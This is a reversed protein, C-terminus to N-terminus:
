PRVQITVVFITHDTVQTQGADVVPMRGEPNYLGVRIQYTGAPTNQPISIQHPDNIIEGPTWSNTPRLGNMPEIDRQAVLTGFDLTLVHIFVKYSSPIAQLARWRLTLGMTDGPRYTSQSVRADELLVQNNLNVQMPIPLTTGGSVTLTITNGARVETGPEPVQKLIIGAPETSWTQEITLILGDAELGAQIQANQDNLDYGVVDQLILARGAALVVDITTEAPVRNGPAPTQELVAGPRVEVSEQEGIVELRLGLSEALRQADPASLGTLNPVSVIVADADLTATPSIPIGITPITVPQMYTQYVFLWLPVLGIVAIAAVGILAWLLFDPRSHAGVPQTSEPEVGAGGTTPPPADVSQPRTASVTTQTQTYEVGQQIYAGVATGLQDANHYRASPDKSLARRVLLELGPPVRPNLSRLSVPEEQLHKLALATPDPDHFPPVGTLMEYLMVGISYVDTAPTPPKGMAQEPAIYHPSGWVVDEPEEQNTREEHHFARAIGFDAVKAQGEYTVLINQPKLDCHVIGARHALGVGACIQQTLYLAQNVSLPGDRRIGTKLDEGEVIEMVIYPHNGEDEGVDYIRVINPHDLRAAARAEGLFRERFAPDSAFPERLFKVAITRELLLDEGRYVTAMGGAGVLEVLRYRQNLITPKM